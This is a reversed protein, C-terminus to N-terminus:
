MGYKKAFFDKAKMDETFKLTEVNLSTVTPNIKKLSWEEGVPYSLPRYRDVLNIYSLNWLLHINDLMTNNVEIAKPNCEKTWGGFASPHNEEYLLRLDGIESLFLPKNKDMLRASLSGTSRITETLQRIKEGFEAQGQPVFIKNAQEKKLCDLLFATDERDYSRLLAYAKLTAGLLTGPILLVVMFATMKWSRQQSNFIFDVQAAKLDDEQIFDIKKGNWLYQAPKLCFNAVTEATGINKRQVQTLLFYDLKSM